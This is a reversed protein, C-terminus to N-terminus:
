SSSSTMANWGSQETDVSACVSTAVVDCVSTDRSNSACMGGSMSRSHWAALAEKM